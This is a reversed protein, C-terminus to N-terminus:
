SGFYRVVGVLLFGVAAVVAVRGSCGSGEARETSAASEPPSFVWTRGSTERVESALSGLGAWGRGSGRTVPSPLQQIRVTFHRGSRDEMGREQNRRLADRDKEIAEVVHDVERFVEELLETLYMSVALLHHENHLDVALARVSWAVTHSDDHRTGRSRAVVQMPQAVQDWHKVVEGFAKVSSLLRKRNGGSAVFRVNEEMSEMLSVEHKFFEQSAGEFYDVLDEVLVPAQVDGMETTLEAVRTVVSVLDRAAMRNLLDVTVKVFYRQREILAKRVDSTVTLPLGADRRDEDLLYEVEEVDVEEFSKAIEEIWRAVERGDTLPSKRRAVRWMCAAMLNAKALPSQLDLQRVNLREAQIAEVAWAEQDPTLGPLWGVECELRGSPTVLVSRASSIAEEDGEDGALLAREAALVM